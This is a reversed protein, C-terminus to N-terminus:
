AGDGDLLSGNGYCGNAARCEDVPDTATIDVRHLELIGSNDDVGIALTQGGGFISTNKVLSHPGVLNTSVYIGVADCGSIVCDDMLLYNIGDGGDAYNLSVGHNGNAFWCRRFTTKTSDNTYLCAGITATEAPGTFFCNEFYCNNLIGAKFAYSGTEGDGTEFGLNYFETNVASTVVVPSGTSPKIKTGVQADRLDQGLGVMVAGYPLSTLNEAFTGPGIVIVNRPGWPTTTWDIDANSTTVAQEITLFRNDWSKGDQGDDGGKGVFYYNGYQNENLPNYPLTVPLQGVPVGGLQFVMDNHTTM